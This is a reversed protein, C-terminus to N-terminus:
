SMFCLHITLLGNLNLKMQEQNFQPPQDQIVKKRNIQKDEFDQKNNLFDNLYKNPDEDKNNLMAKQKNARAEHRLQRMYQNREEETMEDSKKNMLNPSQNDDLEIPLKKPAMKTWSPQQPQDYDSPSPSIYSQKKREPQANKKPSAWKPPSKQENDTDTPSVWEPRKQKERPQYPESHAENDNELPSVWAPKERRKKAGKNRNQYEDDSQIKYQNEYDNDTPSVWAPKRDQNPKQGYFQQDDQEEM